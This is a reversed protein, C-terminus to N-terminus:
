TWCAIVLALMYLPLYLLSSLMLSRATQDNRDRAFVISAKLYPWGLALSVLSFLAIHWVSPLVVVPVLSSVILLVATIVSKRGARLGSPDVVTLMQLGGAEYQDRYKWAIAMFHPFQWFILVAFLSWGIVGVTATTALSGMLVPLAGAIAGVETNIWHHRKLPTYIFVYVIWNAIGCVTTQWNTCALLVALSAGLTVAGFTAVETASLRGAPLPRTSTRPMLFDTYREIFMNMANGSCALLLMGAMASLLVMVNLDSGAELIAPVAFTFLVMVSIRMKTLELYAERRSPQELSTMAASDATESPSPIATKNM